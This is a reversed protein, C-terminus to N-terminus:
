RQRNPICWQLNRNRAIQEHLVSMAPPTCTPLTSFSKVAPSLPFSESLGAMLCLNRHRRCMRNGSLTKCFLNGVLFQIGHSDSGAWATLRYCHPLRAHSMSANYKNTTNQEMHTKTEDICQINSETRMWQYLSTYTSPVNRSRWIFSFLNVDLFCM